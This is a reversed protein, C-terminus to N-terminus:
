GNSFEKNHFTHIALQNFLLKIKNFEKYTKVDYDGGINSTSTGLWGLFLEDILKSTEVPSQESIKEKTLSVSKKIDAKRIKRLYKMLRLAEYSKNGRDMGKLNGTKENYLWSSFLNEIVKDPKIEFPQANFEKVCNEITFM